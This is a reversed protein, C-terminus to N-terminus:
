LRHIPNVPLGLPTSLSDWYPNGAFGLCEPSDERRDWGSRDELGKSWEEEFLEFTTRDLAPCPLLAEVEADKAKMEQRRHKILVKRNSPKLMLFVYLLPVGIPILGTMLVGYTQACMPM